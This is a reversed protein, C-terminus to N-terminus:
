RVRRVLDRVHASVTCRDACEQRRSSEGTPDACRNSDASRFGAPQGRRKAAFATPWLQLFRMSPAWSDGGGNAPTESSAGDRSPWRPSRNFRLITKQEILCERDAGVIAIDVAKEQLQAGAREPEGILDDLRAVRVCPSANSLLTLSPRM